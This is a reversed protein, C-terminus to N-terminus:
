FRVALGGAIGRTLGLLEALSVNYLGEYEPGLLNRIQVMASWETDLARFPLPQHLGVDIRGFQDHVEGDRLVPMGRKWNYVAMLRTRLPSVQADVSAQVEHTRTGQSEWDSLDAGSASAVAALPYEADRDRFSYSLEGSVRDM